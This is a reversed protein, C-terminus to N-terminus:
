QENNEHDKKKQHVVKGIPYLITLYHLPWKIHSCEQQDLVFSLIHHLNPVSEQRQKGPSVRHQKSAFDLLERRMRFLLDEYLYEGM